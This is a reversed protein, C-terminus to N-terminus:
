PRMAIEYARSASYLQEALETDGMQQQESAIIAIYLSLYKRLSQLQTLEPEQNCTM